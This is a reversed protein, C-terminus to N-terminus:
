AQVTEAAPIVGLQTMMGMQDFQQYMDAIRDDRVRYVDIGSVTVQRGTPKVAGLDGVHTGTFTWHHTVLDGEAVELDRTLKDIRFANRYAAADQKIVEPGRGSPAWDPGHFRADPAFIEDAVELRGAEFIDTHVRRCIAKNQEVSM